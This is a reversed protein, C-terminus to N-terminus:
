LIKIKMAKAREVDVDRLPNLVAMAKKTYKGGFHRAISDLEYMGRLADNNTMKGSKCSIYTPINGKLSIVDVENLVDVTEFSFPDHIVGDWDIHVGVQCDDSDKSAVAYTHLELIIGGECLCKKITDNKYRFSIYDDQYTLYEIAGANDLEILITLLKYPSNLKNKSEILKDFIDNKNYNVFLSSTEFEDRMFNTFLNWLSHYEKAVKWIKNILQEDEDTHLTKFSKHLGTNVIGGHMRIYKDIDLKISQQTATTSISYTSNNLEVITDTEIDFFHMPLNLKEALM